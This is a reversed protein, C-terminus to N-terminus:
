SKQHAGPQAFLNNCKGCAGYPTGVLNRMGDGGLRSLFERGQGAHVVRQHSAMANAALSEVRPQCIPCTYTLVARPAITPPADDDSHAGTPGAAAQQAAVEEAATAPTNEGQSTADRSGQGEESCIGVLTRTPQSGKIRGQGTARCIEQPGEGRGQGAAAASEM